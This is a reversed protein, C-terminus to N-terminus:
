TQTGALFGPIDGHDALFKRVSTMEGPIPEENEDFAPLPKDLEKDTLERPYEPAECHEGVMDFYLSDAEEASNAAYIECDDVHFAKLQNSM